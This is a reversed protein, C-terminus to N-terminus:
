TERCRFKQHTKAEKLSKVGGRRRVEQEEGDGKKVAGRRM